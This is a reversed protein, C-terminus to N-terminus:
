TRGSRRGYAISRRVLERVEGEDAGAATLREVQDEVSAGALEDDEVTPRQQQRGSAAVADDSEAFRDGKPRRFAEAPVVMTVLILGLAATATVLGFTIAVGNNDLISGLIMGGIGGVFV